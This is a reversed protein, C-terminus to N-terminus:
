RVRWDGLSGSYITGASTAAGAGNMYWVVIQGWSNQFVIDPNGDSNMDAISVVKWDALGSGPYITGASTASGAGNMYWVVIQGWSNRLILDANGDGNMDAVGVVKWDALGSGPYITGAGTAAGAGN